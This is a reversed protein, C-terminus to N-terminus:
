DAIPLPRWDPPVNGSMPDGGVLLMQLQWPQLTLCPVDAKPWFAFRGSSLRKHFLWFGQGDYMLAKIATHRRNSFVFLTGRSPDLMLQQRCIAVLGDIGVNFRISEIALLIRMHPTLQIMM